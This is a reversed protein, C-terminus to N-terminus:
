AASEARLLRLLGPKAARVRDVMAADLAVGRVSFMEDGTLAVTAGLARLHDLLERAAGLAIAEDPKRRRQEIRESLGKFRDALSMDGDKAVPEWPPAPKFGGPGLIGSLMLSHRM